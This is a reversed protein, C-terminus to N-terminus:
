VEAEFKAVVNMYDFAKFTWTSDTSLPRTGGWANYWGVFKYGPKPEAVLTVGTGTKVITNIDGSVEGMSEDSSKAIIKTDSITIFQARFIM